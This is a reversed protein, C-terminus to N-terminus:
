SVIAAGRDSPAAMSASLRPRSGAPPTAPPSPLWMQSRRRVATGGAAEIEAVVKDAAEGTHNHNVVVTAGAAALALAIAHGIGTAAGTVRATKGALSPTQSM